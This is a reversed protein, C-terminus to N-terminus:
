ITCSLSVWPCQSRPPGLRHHLQATAQSQLDRHTAVMMAMASVTYRRHGQKWSQRHAVEATLSQLSVQSDQYEVSQLPVQYTDPQATDQLFFNFLFYKSRVCFYLCSVSLSLLFLVQIILWGMIACVGTNKTRIISLCDEGVTNQTLNQNFDVVRFAQVTNQIFSM